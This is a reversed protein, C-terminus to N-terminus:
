DGLCINAKRATKLLEHDIPIERPEGAVKHLPISSMQGNQLVVMEGWRNSEVLDIAHIGFRTALLRDFAVPSGGRQLHGLVAVRCDINLRDEIASAIAHSVHGSKYKRSTSVAIESNYEEVPVAGEAVIIITFHKGQGRREMIKNIVSSTNYPIEPILICDAGGALGAYLAIWGATRGMVELVMVRDHSEATTHLRDLADTAVDVASWFGFTFDTHFLDNDITKPVGVFPIGYETMMRHALTQSGDGGISIIGDLNLKKFGELIKPAACNGDDDKDFPNGKNTTGLITGGRTFLNDVTNPDLEWVRKSPQYLGNFAEEIGFIQWRKIGSGYKVIARIVANLGPADGGGTMVGIRKRM